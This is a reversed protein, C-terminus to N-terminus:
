SFLSSAQEIESTGTVSKLSNELLYIWTDWQGERSGSTAARFKLAPWYEEPLLGVLQIHTSYEELVGTSNSAQHIIIRCREM